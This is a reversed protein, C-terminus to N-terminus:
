KEGLFVFRFYYNTRLITAFLISLIIAIVSVLTAYVIQFSISAAMNDLSLIFSGIASLQFVFYIHFIYIPLTNKGIYNIPKLAKKEQGNYNHLFKKISVIIFASACVSSFPEWFVDGPLTLSLPVTIVFHGIWIIFLILHFVESSLRAYFVGHQRLLLGVSFAFYSNPLNEWFIFNLYESLFDIRSLVVLFLFAAFHSVLSFAGGMKRSNGGLLLKEVNYNISTVIAGIVSIIFLVQLFWYGSSSGNYFFLLFATSIYPLLIRAARKKVLASLWEMNAESKFTLYGSVFFFLPMHFSYILRWLLAGFKEGQTMLAMDGTLFSRDLYNWAISHGIVMLLIAFGKATDLEIFRQGKM